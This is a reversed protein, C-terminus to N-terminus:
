DGIERTQAEDALRSRGVAVEHHAVGADVGEFAQSAVVNEGAKCAIVDQATAITVVADFAAGAVVGDVAAVVRAGAIGRTVHARIGRDGDIEFRAHGWRTPVSLAVDMTRTAPTEVM